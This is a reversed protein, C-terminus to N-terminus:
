SPLTCANNFVSSYCNKINLHEEEMKIESGALLDDSLLTLAYNKVIRTYWQATHVIKGRIIDGIIREHCSSTM